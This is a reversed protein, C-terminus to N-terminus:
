RDGGKRQHRGAARGVLDRDLWRGYLDMATPEGPNENGRVTAAIVHVFVWGILRHPLRSAIWLTVLDRRKGIKHRLLAARFRLTGAVDPTM